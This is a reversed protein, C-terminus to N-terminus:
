DFLYGQFLERRRAEDNFTQTTEKELLIKRLIRCVLLYTRYAVEEAKEYDPKGGHVISSRVGYFQKVMQFVDERNPRNTAMFRSVNFATQHSTESNSHPAFLIELVITLNLCVQEAYQARGAYCFYTLADSIRHGTKVTKKFNSWAEAILPANKETIPNWDGAILDGMPVFLIETGAVTRFNDHSWIIRRMSLICNTFISIFNSLKEIDSNSDFIDAYFNGTADPTILLCVQYNFPDSDDILHKKCLDQYVRELESGSFRCLSIGPALVFRPEAIEWAFNHVLLAAFYAM